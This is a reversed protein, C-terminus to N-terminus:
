RYPSLGQKLKKMGMLIRSKITGLPVGLRSAVETHTLGGFFALEIAERQEPPLEALLERTRTALELREIELDAEAPAVLPQEQLAGEDRRRASRTARMRDLARSRAMVLLWGRPSSRDPRYSDAKKWAQLFVEQLVEEAEGSAGLMRLLLGHVRDGHRGFLADLAAGDGRTMRQMLAVDVTDDAAPPVLESTM